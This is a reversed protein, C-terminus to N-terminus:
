HYYIFTESTMPTDWNEDMQLHSRWHEVGGGLDAGAVGDPVGKGCLIAAQQWARLPLTRFPIIVIHIGLWKSDM